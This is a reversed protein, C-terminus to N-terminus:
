KIEKVLIESKFVDVDFIVVKITKGIVYESSKNSILITDVYNNLQVFVRSSTIGSIIGNFEHGIYKVMYECVKVNTTEMELSQAVRETKSIHECIPKLKDLIKDKEKKDIYKDILISLLRHVVLDSYRRIPSTFHLYYKSALGFHGKNETSYIAKQMSKLILKHAMYSIPLKKTKEIIKQFQSSTINNVKKIPYGLKTLEANLTEISTIDPKEHIRYVTPMEDWYFRQAVEENALIMFSEILKESDERNRISLSTVENKSNLNLKIEPIDFDISGRQKKQMELMKSLENMSNLMQMYELKNDNNKLLNNVSDYDLKYKSKIISKYFDSSIVKANEDLTIEVTFALRDVNPNLSCLDNSLRKHLMPIVENYLYVSNGRLKAWKDLASNKKVFYSVDAISVFLKYGKDIKELCIADDIDRTDVSDITVHLKERLDVRNKLEKKINPDKINKIENIVDIDFTINIGSKEIIAKTLVDAKSSNGYNKIIKGEAKKNKNGWFYIKIKVLDGTKVKNKKNIKVYVDEYFSSISVFSFKDHVEIKGIFEDTSRKLIKTIKAEQKGNFTIYEFEVLDNDHANLTNIGSVYCKDDGSIIFGYNSKSMSLTGEYKNM